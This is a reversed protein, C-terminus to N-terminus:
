SGLLLKEKHALELDSEIMEEILQEFTYDPRWGLLNRIKSSDGCLEDVETPRLYKSDFKVYKEIDLDLKKFVIELFEKVSHMEGSAVVWDDADPANVMMWLAKAVDKAHNWDRKSDLNGLILKDKLGLKIKAATRTIKRTVFTEGRKPSNHVVVRGVGATFVGSGTELDFVWEDPDKDEVIEDVNLIGDMKDKDIDLKYFGNDFSTYIDYGFSYFLLYLGQSLISSDTNVTFHDTKEFNSNDINFFGNIFSQKISKSSNLVLAPVKKNKEEFSNSIILSIINESGICYLKNDKIEVKNGLFLNEWLNKVKDFLFEDNIPFIINNDCYVGKSIFYGLFESYILLDVIDKKLTKFNQLDRPTDKLLLFDGVKINDARTEEGSSKIMTHHSTCNVIGGKSNIYLMKHNNDDKNRYTATITKLPTWNNGDWIDINSIEFTQSNKYDRILPILSSVYCIDIENNKKIIIPTKEGICEHNFSISNAAFLKGSERYNVTSWYGAIKAAGYPSRPHFPTNENQPPPTSGFLESTSAQVFKTHNSFKSLAELCRITGTAGIDMTYEPIDFSVRVHSMAALNYFEDPKIVNVWDAISGYDSLDGFTLHIDDYIHNIRETNFSSSRRILGYVDYGKDLLVEALYSGTQGTIGTICAKKM